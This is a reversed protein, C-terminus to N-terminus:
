MRAVLLNSSFRGEDDVWRKKVELGNAHALADIQDFDYKYSSETHITEGEDFEAVIDLADIAVRQRRTSELHMEVRGAEENFWARHVFARLDFHGGLERNIRRLINKNFAATVGVPDDYAARLVEPDKKLDAGLLFADKPRMSASIARLTSAAESPEFNGVNSGLFLILTRSGNDRRLQKLGNLYDTAYADIVINPYARQLASSSATIAAQSIDIPRYQLQSQVHFAADILYRTKVASGSGLEVIEVPAGLTAIIDDSNRALIQAEASTLYYEPLKSIAEFLTSGLEDYFYKALLMKPRGTLGARVDEPFSM